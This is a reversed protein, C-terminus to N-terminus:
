EAPVAPTTSDSTAVATAYFAIRNRGARKATYMAEDAAAILGSLDLADEPFFAVGISAGLPPDTLPPESPDALAALLRQALQALERGDRANPAILAFEDGGLRVLLDSGRVIRRFRHAVEALLSDGANHGYRDNVAKFGDLDIFLLAVHAGDRRARALTYALWREFFRRNPLQTLSDHNADREIRAALQRRERLEWVIVLYAAIFLGALVIGAASAWWLTNSSREVSRALEAGIRVQLLKRIADLQLHIERMEMAGTDTKTGRLVAELGADRRLEISHQLDARKLRIVADAQWYLAVAEPQEALLTRADEAQRDIEGLAREYPRLYEQNGTLLYGRAGSEADSLSLELALLARQADHLSDTLADGALYARGSSVAFWGAGLLIAGGALFALLIKQELSIGHRM